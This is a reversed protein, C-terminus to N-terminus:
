GSRSPFLEFLREALRALFSAGITVVEVIGDHRSRHRCLSGWPQRLLLHWNRNIIVGPLCGLTSGFSCLIPLRSLRRPWATPWRSVPVAAISQVEAPM